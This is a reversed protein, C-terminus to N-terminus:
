STVNEESLCLLPVLKFKKFCTRLWDYILGLKGGETSRQAATLDNVSKDKSGSVGPSRRM